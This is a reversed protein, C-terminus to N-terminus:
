TVVGVRSRLLDRYCRLVNSLRDMLLLGSGSRVVVVGVLELGPCSALHMPFYPFPLLFSLPSASNLKMVSFLSYRALM